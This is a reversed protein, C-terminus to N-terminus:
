ANIWAIAQSTTASVFTGSLRWDNASKTRRAWAVKPLFILRVVTHRINCSAAILGQCYSCQIKGRSGRNASFAPGIKSRYARSRPLCAAPASPNRRSSHVLLRANLCPPATMLFHRRLGLLAPPNFRFVIPFSGQLVQRRPVHM